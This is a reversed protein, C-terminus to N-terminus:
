GAYGLWLQYYIYEGGSAPICRFVFVNYHFELYDGEVNCAHLTPYNGYHKWQISIPTNPSYHATAAVPAAQAASTATLAAPAALFAVTAIAPIIMNRMLKM